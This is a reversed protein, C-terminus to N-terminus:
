GTTHPYDVKQHTELLNETFGKQYLIRGGDLSTVLDWREERVLRRINDRVWFAYEYLPGDPHLSRWLDFRGNTDLENTM